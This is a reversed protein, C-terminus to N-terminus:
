QRPDFHARTRLASTLLLARGMPPTPPIVLLFSLATPAFVRNPIPTIHGIPLDARLLGGARSARGWNFSKVRSSSPRFPFAIYLASRVEMSTKSKKVWKYVTSTWWVCPLGNAKRALEGM